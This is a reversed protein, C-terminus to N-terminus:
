PQAEQDITLNSWSPFDWKDRGTHRSQENRYAMERRYHWRCVLIAGDGGTPLRRIEDKTEHGHDCGNM